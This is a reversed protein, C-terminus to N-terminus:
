RLGRNLYRKFGFAALSCGLLQALSPRFGMLWSLAAICVALGALELVIAACAAPLTRRRGTFINRTMTM